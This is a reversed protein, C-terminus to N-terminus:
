ALLPSLNQSHRPPPYAPVAIVGAYLCGKFAAIFDIGPPYVLLALEGTAGLSQLQSAYARSRQDLVQYTIRDTEKEGKENFTYAIKFPQTLARYCLLEVLNSLTKSLESCRINEM